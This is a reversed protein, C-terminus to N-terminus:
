SARGTAPHTIPRMASELLSVRSARPRPTGENGRLVTLPKGEVYVHRPLATSRASLSRALRTSKRSGSQAASSTRAVRSSRRLVPEPYRPPSGLAQDDQPRLHPAANRSRRSCGPGHRVASSGAFEPIRRHAPPVHTPHRRRRDQSGRERFSTRSSGSRPWRGQEAGPAPQRPWRVGDPAPAERGTKLQAGSGVGKRVSTPWRTAKEVASM